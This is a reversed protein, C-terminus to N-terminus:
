ELTNGTHIYICALCNQLSMMHTCSLVGVRSGGMCSGDAIAHLLIPSFTSSMAWTVASEKCLYPFIMAMAFGIRVQSQIHRLSFFFGLRLLNM